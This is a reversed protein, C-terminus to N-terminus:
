EDATTEGLCTWPLAIVRKGLRAIENGGHVLLGAACEPYDNLFRNLVKADGFRPRDTIRCEIAVM